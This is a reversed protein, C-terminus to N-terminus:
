EYKKMEEQYKEIYQMERGVEKSEIAFFNGKKNSGRKSLAKEEDSTLVGKSVLADLGVLLALDGQSIKNGEGIECIVIICQEMRYPIVWVQPGIVEIKEVKSFEMKIQRIVEEPKEKALVVKDFQGRLDVLGDTAKYVTEYFEGERKSDDLALVLKLGRKKGLQRNINKILLAISPNDLLMQYNIIVARENKLDQFDFIKVRSLEKNIYSFIKEWFKLKEAKGERALVLRGEEKAKEIEENIAKHAAASEDGTHSINADIESISNEALIQGDKAIEIKIDELVLRGDKQKLFELEEAKNLDFIGEYASAIEVKGKLVAKPLKIKGDIRLSELNLLSVGEFAELCNLVSNYFASLTVAPPVPKEAILQWNTKDLTYYDSYFQLFFDFATKVPTFLRTRNEVDANVIRLISSIKHKGLLKQIKPNKSTEFFAALNLMVSGLAGGFGTNKGDKTREAIFCPALIQYLEEKNVIEEKLVDKLFPILVSYNILVMNTNFYQAAKEGETLGMDYFLQKQNVKEAQATELIEKKTNGSVLEGEPDLKVVGIQGGKMDLGTKTTTVMLIPVRKEATFNVIYKDPLNNIGEDNYIAGIRIWEEPIKQELARLILLFGSLGHGGPLRQSTFLGSKDNRTPFVNEIVPTKLRINPAANVVQRYTRKQIEPISDDLRDPLYVSNFLADRSSITDSSLLDKLIIEGFTRKQAEQIIRLLKAEAISIFVKKKDIELEIFLDCAKAGLVIDRKRGLIEWILELYKDRGVKKGIGGSLPYLILEVEKAKRDYRPNNRLNKYDVQALLEKREGKSLLASPYFNKNIVLTEDKPNTFQQYLARCYEKEQLSLGAFESWLDIEFEYREQASFESIEKAAGLSIGDKTIRKLLTSEISEERILIALNLPNFDLPHINVSFANGELKVEPPAREHQFTLFVEAEKTEEYVNLKGLGPLLKIDENKKKLINFADTITQNIQTKITQLATKLNERQEDIYANAWEAHKVEYVSVAIGEYIPGYCSTISGNCGAIKTTIDSSFGPRDIGVIMIETYDIAAPIKEEPIDKYYINKPNKISIQMKDPAKRYDQVLKYLERVQDVLREVPVTETEIHESPMSGIISDIFDESINEKLLQKKAQAKKIKGPTKKEEDTEKKGSGPLVASLLLGAAIGKPIKKLKATKPHYSQHVERALKETWELDENKVREKGVVAYLEQALLSALKKTSYKQDNLLDTKNLLLYLSKFKIGAHAVQGGPPAREAMEVRVINKREIEEAFNVKGLNRPLDLDPHAKVIEVAKEIKDRVKQTDAPLQAELDTVTGGLRVLLADKKGPNEEFASGRLEKKVKSLNTLTPYAFVSTSFIFTQIIILAIIKIMLNHKSM